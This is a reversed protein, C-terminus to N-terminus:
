RTGISHLLFCREFGSSFSYVNSVAINTMLMYPNPVVPHVDIVIQYIAKLDQM